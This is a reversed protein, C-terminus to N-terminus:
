GSETFVRSQLGEFIRRAWKSQISLNTPQAQIQVKDSKVKLYGYGCLWLGDGAREPKEIEEFLVAKVV